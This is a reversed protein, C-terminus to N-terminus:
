PRVTFSAILAAATLAGLVWAVWTARPFRPVIEPGLAQLLIATGLALGRYPHFPHGDGAIGRFELIRYVLLAAALVIMARNVPRWKNSFTLTNM